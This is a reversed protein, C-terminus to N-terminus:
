ENPNQDLWEQAAQEAEEESLGLDLAVEYATEMGITNQLNSMNTSM